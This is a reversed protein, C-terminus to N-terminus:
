HNNKPSRSYSITPEKVFKTPFLQSIRLMGTEAQKHFDSSEYFSGKGSRAYYSQNRNLEPAPMTLDVIYADAKAKMEEKFLKVELKIKQIEMPDLKYSNLDTQKLSLFSQVKKIKKEMGSTGAALIFQTKSRSLLPVRLQKLEQEKKHDDQGPKESHKGEEIDEHDKEKINLDTLTRIEQNAEEEYEEEEKELLNIL